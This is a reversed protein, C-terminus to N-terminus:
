KMSALMEISEEGSEFFGTLLKPINYFLEGTTLKWRDNGPNVCESSPTSYDDKM